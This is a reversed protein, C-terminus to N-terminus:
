TPPYLAGLAIDMQLRLHPIHSLRSMALRRFPSTKPRWRSPETHALERLQAIVYGTREIKEKKKGPTKKKKNLAGESLVLDSHEALIESRFLLGHRVAYSLDVRPKVFKRSGSVRLPSSILHTTGRSPFIATHSFPLEPPRKTLLTACCTTLDLIPDRSEM